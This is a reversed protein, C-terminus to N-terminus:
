QRDVGPGPAQSSRDGARVRRAPKAEEFGFLTSKSGGPSWAEVRKREIVLVGGPEGPDGLGVDAMVLRRGHRVSPRSPLGGQVADSRTHGVFMYRGGVSDLARDLERRLAASAPALCYSRNWLPGSPDRLLSDPSLDEYFDPATAWEAARQAELGELGLAAWGESLGGHVFVFPGMRVAAPLVRIAAGIRGTPGMERRYAEKGPSHEEEWVRLRGGVPPVLRAEPAPTLLEFQVRFRELYYLELEAETAHELYEEVSVYAEHRLASLVEHNGLVWVVDGGAERAEQQLDLLLNMAAKPHPGRNPVDGLQVLVARGGCWHGEKTMVRLGELTRQLVTLHGNLDGVVIIRSPTERVLDASGEPLSPSLTPPAYRLAPEGLLKARVQLAM